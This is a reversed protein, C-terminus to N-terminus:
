VGPGAGATAHDAALLHALTELLRKKSTIALGCGIRQETLFDPRFM